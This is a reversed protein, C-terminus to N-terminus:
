RVRPALGAAFRQIAPAGLFTASAPFFREFRTFKSEVLPQVPRMTVPTLGTVYLAISNAVALKRAPPGSSRGTSTIKDNALDQLRTVRGQDDGIGHRRLM